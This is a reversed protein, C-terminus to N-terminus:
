VHQPPGQGLRDGEILHAQSVVSPSVAEPVLALTVTSNSTPTFAFSPPRPLGRSCPSDGASPTESQFGRTFARLFPPSFGGGRVYRRPPPPHPTMM